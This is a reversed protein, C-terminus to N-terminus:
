NQTGQILNLYMNLQKHFHAYETHTKWIPSPIPDSQVWEARPQSFLRIWFAHNYHTKQVELVLPFLPHPSAM